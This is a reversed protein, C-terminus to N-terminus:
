KTLTIVIDSKLLLFKEIIKTIKYILSKKSWINGDVREDPWFGRM